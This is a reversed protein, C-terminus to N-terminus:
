FRSDVIRGAELQRGDVISRERGDARNFALSSMPHIFFREVKVKVSTFLRTECARVIIVFFLFVVVPRFM